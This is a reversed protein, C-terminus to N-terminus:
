KCNNMEPVDYYGFGINTIVKVYKTLDNGCFYYHVGKVADDVSVLDDVLLGSNNEGKVERILNFRYFTQITEETLEYNDDWWYFLKNNKIVYRSPIINMENKRTEQSLPFQHYSPHISVGVIGDYLKDRVWESVGDNRQQLVRSYIKNYYNICFVSDKEYLKNSNTFDLIANYIATEDSLNGSFLLNNKYSTCSNFPLLVIINIICFKILRM